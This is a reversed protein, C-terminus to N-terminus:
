STSTKHTLETTLARSSNRPSVHFMIYIVQEHSFMFIQAPAVVCSAHFPEKCQPDNNCRGRVPSPIFLITFISRLPPNILHNSARRSLHLPLTFMQHRAAERESQRKLVEAM